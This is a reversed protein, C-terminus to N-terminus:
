DKWVSYNYFSVPLSFLLLKLVIVMLAALKNLLLLQLFFIVYFESIDRKSVTKDIEEFQFSVSSFLCFNTYHGTALIKSYAVNHKHLYISEHKHTRNEEDCSM